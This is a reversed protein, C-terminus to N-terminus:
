ISLITNYIIIFGYLFFQGFLVITESIDVTEFSNIFPISYELRIRQPKRKLIILKVIGYSLSYICFINIWILFIVFIINANQSFIIILAILLSAIVYKLILNVYTLTGIINLRTEKYRLGYRLVSFIFLISSLLSCIITLSM